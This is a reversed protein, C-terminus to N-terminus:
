DEIGDARTTEGNRVGQLRRECALKRDRDLPTNAIVVARAPPDARLRLINTGSSACCARSCTQGLKM